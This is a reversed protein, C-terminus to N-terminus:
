TLLRGTLPRGTLARIPKEQLPGAKGYAERHFSGVKGYPRATRSLPGDVRILFPRKPKHDRLFGGYPVRGTLDSGYSAERWTFAEENDKKPLSGSPGTLVGTLSRERLRFPPWAQNYVANKKKAACLCFNRSSNLDGLFVRYPVRGTLKGTDGERHLSGRVRGTLKGTPTAVEVRWYWEM